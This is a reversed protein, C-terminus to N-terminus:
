HMMILSLQRGEDQGQAARHSFFQDRNCATCRDATLVNGGYLGAEILQLRNAGWLDFMWRERNRQKRFVDAAWPRDAFADHVPADVEYCCPGIAPGILATIDERRSSFRGCLVGVMKAAIGLATGRWGAHVAGVVRLRRDVFLIPVCDATKIGLAVGARGTVFGDCEMLPFPLADHEGIEVIRDAHVQRAMVLGDEPVAFANKIRAINEEVNEKHDGVRDGVNLSAFGGASVGGHRTCFAHTLFGVGALEQAEIFEVTGKKGACFM